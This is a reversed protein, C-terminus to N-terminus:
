MRKIWMGTSCSAPSWFLIIAMVTLFGSYIPSGHTVGIIMSLAEQGWLFRISFIAIFVFAFIKFILNEKGEVKKRLGFVLGLLLSCVAVIIGWYAIAIM